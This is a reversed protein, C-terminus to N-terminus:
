LKDGKTGFHQDLESNYTQPSHTSVILQESLFIKAIFSGVANLMKRGATLAWSDSIISAGCKLNGNVLYAAVFPFSSIDTERDGGVIGLRRSLSFNIMVSAAIVAQLLFKGM